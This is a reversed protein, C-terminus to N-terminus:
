RQGGSGGARGSKQRRLEDRRRPTQLTFTRAGTKLEAEGDSVSAVTAQGVKEGVAAVKLRGDAARFLGHSLGDSSVLTGLLDIKTSATTTTPLSRPKPREFAKSTGQLRLAALVAFDEDSLPERVSDQLVALGRDVRRQAQDSVNPSALGWSLFACAAGVLLMLLALGRALMM